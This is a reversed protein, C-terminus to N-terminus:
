KHLEPWCERKDYLARTVPGHVQGEYVVGLWASNPLDPRDPDGTNAWYRIRDVRSLRFVHVRVHVYPHTRETTPYFPTGDICYRLWARDNRNENVTFHVQIRPIQADTGPIRVCNYISDCLLLADHKHLVRYTPYCHPGFSRSEHEQLMREVAAPIAIRADRDAQAQAFGELIATAPDQIPERAHLEAQVLRDLAAYQAASAGTLGAARATADRVWQKAQAPTLSAAVNRALRRVAPGTLALHDKM